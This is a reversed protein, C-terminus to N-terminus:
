KRLIQSTSVESKTRHPLAEGATRRSSEKCRASAFRRHNAEQRAFSESSINRFIAFTRALNWIGCGFVILKVILVFSPLGGFTSALIGQNGPVVTRCAIIM